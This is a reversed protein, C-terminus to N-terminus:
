LHVVLPLNAAAAMVAAMVLALNAALNAGAPPAVVAGGGDGAPPADIDDNLSSTNKAGDGSSCATLATLMLACFFFKLINKDFKITM